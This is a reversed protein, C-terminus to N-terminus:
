QLMDSFTKLHEEESALIDEFLRRSVPDDIEVCLKVGDRYLSVAEQEARFDDQLMKHLDGGVFIPSPTTTPVGGLQDLREAFSEAHKMEVIGIEKFVEKASPSTLGVAMVHHWMYQISVQLERAISRNLMDILRQDAL